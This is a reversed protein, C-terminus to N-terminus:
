SDNKVKGGVLATLKNVISNMEGSQQNLVSSESSCSDANAANHQTVQDLQSIAKTIQEVGKAQELSSSAIEGVLENTKSIQGVISKFSEGVRATIDASDKSSNVSEEILGSSNRAAEASRMALNRVEEAVVAFGKGAEGARAAEVAANLALLNTQFAIEDIVKIINATENASTQVREIVENMSGMATSGENVSKNAKESLIQAERASEANHRTNSSIEEINATTEELTAAQEAACGALKHSSSALQQSSSTVQLSSNNLSIIIDNLPCTVWRYIGWGLAILSVVGICTVFIIMNRVLSGISAEVQKVPGLIVDEPVAFSIVWNWQDMTTSFVVKNIGNYPYSFGSEGSILKDTFAQDTFKEGKALEPHVVILGDKNIIFPYISLRALETDKDKYYDEQLKEIVGNQADVIYEDAMDTGTMGLDELTSVLLSNVQNVQDLIKGLRLDFIDDQNDDVIDVVYSSVSNAQVYVLAIVGIGTVIFACAIMFQLKSSISRTVM